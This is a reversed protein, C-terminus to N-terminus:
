DDASLADQEAKNGVRIYATPPANKNMQVVYYPDFRAGVEMGPSGVPMGPVSLGIAGEPPAALFRSIAGAPVHGEFVYGAKSIATHCSQLRPDFGHERKIDRLDDHDIADVTYDNDELHDIWKTCCGCTPTKHVQLTEALLHGSFFAAVFALAMTKTFQM